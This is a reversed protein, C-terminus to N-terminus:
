RTFPRKVSGSIREAFSGRERERGLWGEHGVQDRPGSSMVSLQDFSIVYIKGFLM